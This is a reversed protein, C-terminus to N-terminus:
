LATFIFLLSITVGEKIHQKLFSIARYMHNEVTRKSINLVLSIEDNSLGQEKNMQFVQRRQPPMQQVLNGIQLVLDSYYIDNLTKHELDSLNHKVHESYAREVAKKKTYNYVDNIAIRYIYSKFNQAEDIKERRLWIKIFLNQVIEEAEARVKVMKITFLLLNDFYKEYLMGFAKFDGQIMQNVLIIEENEPTKNM